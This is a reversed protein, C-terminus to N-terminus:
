HSKGERMKADAKAEMIRERQCVNCTAGDPDDISGWVSSERAVTEAEDADIYDAFQVTRRITAPCTSCNLEIEASLIKM